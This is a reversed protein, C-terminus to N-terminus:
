NTYIISCGHFDFRWPMEILGANSIQSRFKRQKAPPVYFMWYGGGGAGILKGGTAGVSRAFNYTKDLSADSMQSSIKKKAMWHQHLLEGFCDLDNAELAKGSEIGIKQIEHMVTVVDGSNQKLASAQESLIPESNRAIGSYYLFLSSEIERMASSSLHLPEVKIEGQTNVIFRSLGGIASAYQDQKGSSKGMEIAELRFALEALDQRTMEVKEMANLLTLCGVLFAGSSGMGSNGPVESISHIEIGTEFSYHKLCAKLGAHRIEDVNDCVETQSYSLWIKKDTIRESGTLYIYKDISASIFCGGHKEYWSPLDTGGGGLSIRLPARVIIM